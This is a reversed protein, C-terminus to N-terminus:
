ALVRYRKYGHKKMLAEYERRRLVTLIETFAGRWAYVVGIGRSGVAIYVDSWRDYVIQVPERLAELVEDIDINREMIRTKAHRTLIIRTEMREVLM